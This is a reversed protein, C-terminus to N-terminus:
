GCSRACRIPRCSHGDFSLIREIAACDLRAVIRRLLDERMAAPQKSTVSLSLGNRDIHSSIHVASPVAFCAADRIGDEAGWRWHAGKWSVTIIPPHLGRARLAAFRLHRSPNKGLFREFNEDWRQNIMEKLRAAVLRAVSTLPADLNVKVPIVLSGVGFGFGNVRDLHDRLIPIDLMVRGSPVGQQECYAMSVAGALWAAFSGCEAHAKQRLPTSLETPVTLWAVGPPHLEETPRLCSLHQEIIFRILWAAMPRRRGRRPFRSRFHTLSRGALVAVIAEMLRLMSHGDAAAHDWVANLWVDDGEQVLRYHWLPRNANSKFTLSIESSRAQDQCESDISVLVPRSGLWAVRCQLVPFRPRVTAIAGEVKAVTTEQLRAILGCPMGIGLRDMAAHM